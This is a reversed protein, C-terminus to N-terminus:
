DSLVVRHAHNSFTAHLRQPIAPDTLASQETRQSRSPQGPVSTYTDGPMALLQACILATLRGEVREQFASFM